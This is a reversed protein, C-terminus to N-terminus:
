NERSQLESTHEESRGADDAGLVHGAGVVHDHAGLRLVHVLQPLQHGRVDLVHLPDGAGEGARHHVQLLRPTASILSGRATTPPTSSWDGEPTGLGTSITATVRVASSATATAAR